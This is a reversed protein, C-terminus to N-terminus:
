SFRVAKPDIPYGNVDIGLREADAFTGCSSNRSVMKPSLIRSIRGVRKMLPSRTVNWSDGLIRLLGKTSDLVLIERLIGRSTSLAVRSVQRGSDM